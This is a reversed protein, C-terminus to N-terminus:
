KRNLIQGMFIVEGAPDSDPCFFRCRLIEVEGSVVDMTESDIRFAKCVGLPGHVMM